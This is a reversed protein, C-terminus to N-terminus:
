PWATGHEVGFRDDDKIVQQMTATTVELPSIIVHTVQTLDKVNPDSPLNRKAEVGFYVYVYGDAPVSKLVDLLLQKTFKWGMGPEDPTVKKFNRRNPNGPRDPDDPEEPDPIDAPDTRTKTILNARRKQYKRLYTKATKGDIIDGTFGEQPGIPILVMISNSNLTFHSSSRVHKAGFVVLAIRAAAPRNLFLINYTLRIYTFVLSLYPTKGTRIRGKEGKNGPKQVPGFPYKEGQTQQGLRAVKPVNAAAM